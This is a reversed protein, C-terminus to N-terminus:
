VLKFMKGVAKKTYDAIEEKTPERFKDICFYTISLTAIYWKIASITTVALASVILVVKIM